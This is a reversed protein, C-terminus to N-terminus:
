PVPKLVESHYRGKLQKPRNLRIPYNGEHVIWRCVRDMWTAASRRTPHAGDNTRDYHQSPTYSLYFNGEPLVEQLLNNIGTDPKWNPPGIWVYPLKGIESVIEEVFKRRSTKVNRVFLENSGLCVIIYDPHFKQICHTLKRSEGWVKTSSSYWIVSHLKHGNAECYAGLRPALGELMSDGIFLINKSTTDMVRALQRREETKLPQEEAPEAEHGPLERVSGWLAQVFPGTKVVLHGFAENYVSLALFGVFTVTLISWLVRYPKKM